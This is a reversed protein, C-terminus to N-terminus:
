IASESDKGASPNVENDGASRRGYQALSALLTVHRPSAPEAAERQDQQEGGGRRHGHDSRSGVIWQQLLHEAIRVDVDGVQVPREVHGAQGGREGRRVDGGEGGLQSREPDAELVAEVVGAAAGPARQGEGPRQNGPRSDAVRELPAVEAAPLRRVVGRQFRGGPGLELVEEGLVLRLELDIEALQRVGVDRDDVAARDDLDVGLALDAPDRHAVAVDHAEDVAAVQHEVAGAVPTRHVGPHRRRHAGRGGLRGHRRVERGVRDLGEAARRVQLDHGGGVGLEEIEVRRPRPVVVAQGPHHRDLHGAVEAGPFAQDVGRGAGQEADGVDVVVGGHPPDRATDQRDAVVAQNGVAYLLRPVRHGEGVDQQGVVARREGGAAAGQAADVARDLRRQRALEDLHVVVAARDVLRRGAVDVEGLTGAGIAGDGGAMRGAVGVGRAGTEVLDVPQDLLAPAPQGVVGPQGLVLQRDVHVDVVGAVGEPVAAADVEVARAAAAGVGALQGADEVVLPAVAEVGVVVVGADRARALRDGVHVAEQLQVVRAEAAVEPRAVRAAAVAVGAAAGGDAGAHAVAVEGVVAAAVGCSM